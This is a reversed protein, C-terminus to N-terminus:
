VFERVGGPKLNLAALEADTIKIGTPYTGRDLETRIKM